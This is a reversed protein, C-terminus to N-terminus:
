RPAPGDDQMASLLEAVKVPKVLHRAFGAGRARDRDADQGYGTLALLRCGDLAGIQRLRVALEYGDIVPLGIDLIAIEPVFEPALRLAAAADHAVRVDYGVERLLDALLEAADQNDDVVLVRQSGHASRIRAPVPPKAPLEAAKRIPLRVVFESGRGEGASHAAVTGDHLEVLSKVLTLGIGLGGEARDSSRSRNGQVFLTFVNAILEPSMGIGNDVVRIVVDDRDRDRDRAAALEIEGRPATYRAANTLLNAVIQALRMPDGWWVIPEDPMRVILRHQRGEILYSAMEVAKGLVDAVDVAERKLEVKGRTIKSVDLLDDVLRTLHAVQREVVSLEANQRGDQRLRQMELATVIPALPNRLEHGLMALFEDKARSAAELERVLLTREDHAQQLRAHAEDQLHRARVLATTETCVVLTGAIRGREDFVPSYGYTWYVDEIKGNRFIPVLADEHWTALGRTMVGAIQPGIIPWIEQWCDAGRQGLADPHKGRGFSPVYADNYLQVLEPGWWLFMPHRSSLMLQVVTKLSAPWGAIPGLPTASWDKARIAAAMAGGGTPFELPDDPAPAGRSM